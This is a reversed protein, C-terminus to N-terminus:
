IVSILDTVSRPLDLRFSKSVWDLTSPDLANRKATFQPLTLTFLYQDTITVLSQRVPLDVNAPLALATSVFALVAASSFQM